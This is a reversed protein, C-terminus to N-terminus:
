SCKRYEGCDPVFIHRNEMQSSGLLALLFQRINEPNVTQTPFRTQDHRASSIAAITFRTFTHVPTTEQRQTM